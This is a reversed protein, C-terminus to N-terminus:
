LRVIAEALSPAAASTHMCLHVNVPWKSSRNFRSAEIRQFAVVLDCACRAGRWFICGEEARQRELVLDAAGAVPAALAATAM